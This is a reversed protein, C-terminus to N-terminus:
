RLQVKTLILHLQVVSATSTDFSSDNAYRAQSDFLTYPNSVRLRDFADVSGDTFTVPIGNSNSSMLTLQNILADIQSFYLRLINNLQDHYQQQYQVPAYPLAPSKVQTLSTENVLVVNSM